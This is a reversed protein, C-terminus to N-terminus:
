AYSVPMGNPWVTGGTTAGLPQLAVAYDWKRTLDPADASKYVFYPTSTASDAFVKYYALANISSADSAQLAGIAQPFTTGYGFTTKLNGAFMASGGGTALAQVGGATSVETLQAYLNIMNSYATYLYANGVTFKLNQDSSKDYVLTYHWSAPDGGNIDASVTGDTNLRNLNLNGATINTCYGVSMPQYIYFFETLGNSDTGNNVYELKYHGANKVQTALQKEMSDEYINIATKNDVTGGAPVINTTTADPVWAVGLKPDPPTSTDVYVFHGPVTTTTTTPQLAVTQEATLVANDGRFMYLNYVGSLDHTGSQDYKVVGNDTGLTLSNLGDVRTTPVTTATPATKTGYDATSGSMNTVDTKTGVVKAAPLVIPTSTNLRSDKYVTVKLGLLLDPTIPNGNADLIGLDSSNAYIPANVATVVPPTVTRDVTAYSIALDVPKSSVTGAVQKATLPDPQKLNVPVGTKAYDKIQLGAAYGQIASVYGTIKTIGFSDLVPTQVNQSEYRGDVANFVMQLKNYNSLLFNYLLMGMQNRTIEQTAAVGSFSFSSTEVYAGILAVDVNNAQSLYGVPYSLGTYGLATVLMKVADQLTINGTPNFLGNGIGNVIGNQACYNIATFYTPDTVDTFDNVSVSPDSVFYEPTASTIRAVFLAFQQRTVPQDGSFVQNGDADVGTGKVIGLDNLVNLAHALDANAVSATADVDAFPKASVTMAMGSVVMVIVLALALFRKLNSM